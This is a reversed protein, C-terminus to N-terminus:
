NVAELRDFVKKLQGSWSLHDSAFQRTANVDVLGMRHYFPIIEKRINIASENAEIQLHFDDLSNFADDIYGFVFPLGRACFERLKLTSGHTLGIRHMGLSGVGMDAMDFLEDLAKGSQFGYYQVVGKDILPKSIKKLNVLEKGEGVVHFIVKMEAAEEYYRLLGNILRDYGHWTSLNAVGILNITNNKKPKKKLKFDSLLIGNSINIAPINYISSQGCFTIALDVYNKLQASYVNNVAMNIKDRLSNAEAQFPFTPFEIIIKIGPYLKKVKKLFRILGLSALPFRIYVFDLQEAKEIYEYVSYYYKIHFNLRRSWNSVTQKDELKITNGALLGNSTLSILEVEKNLLDISKIQQLIKKKVGAHEPIELDIKAIYFGRRM